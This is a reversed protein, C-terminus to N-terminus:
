SLVRLTDHSSALLAALNDGSIQLLLYCSHFQLRQRFVVRVDSKHLQLSVLPNLCPSIESFPESEINSLTLYQLSTCAQVINLLSEGFFQFDRGQDDDYDHDLEVSLHTLSALGDTMGEVEVRPFPHVPSLTLYIYLKRLTATSQQM